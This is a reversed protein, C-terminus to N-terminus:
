IRTNRASFYEKAPAGKLLVYALGLLFAGGMAGLFWQSFVIAAVFHLMGWASLAAVCYVRGWVKKRFIAVLALSNILPLVSAVFYVSISPDHKSVVFLALFYLFLLYSFTVIAAVISQPREM